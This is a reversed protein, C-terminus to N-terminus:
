KYEVMKLWPGVSSVPRDMDLNVKGETITLSRINYGNAQLRATVNDAISGSNNKVWDTPINIRGIQLSDIQSSPRNNTM